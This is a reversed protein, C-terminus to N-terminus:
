VLRTPDASPTRTDILVPTVGAPMLRTLRQALHAFRRAEDAEDATSVEVTLVDSAGLFGPPLAFRGRDLDVALTGPSAVADEVDLSRLDVALLSTIDAGNRRVHYGRDTGHYAAATAGLNIKMSLPTGDFGDRLRAFAGDPAFSYTAGVQALRRPTVSRRRAAAALLFSVRVDGATAGVADLNILFRGLQPDVAVDSTGLSLLVGDPDRPEDFRSLNAARVVMAIERAPDFVSVGRARISFGRATDIYAPLDDRLRRRTLPAGDIGDTLQLPHGDPQGPGLLRGDFTFGTFVDPFVPNPAQDPVPRCPTLYFAHNDFHARGIRDRPGASSRLDMTYPATDDCRGLRAMARGDRLDHTQQAVSAPLLRHFSVTLAGAPPAPAPVLFRGLEPDVAVQGATLVLPAGSPSRPQAFDTLDAGVAVALGSGPTGVLPAGRLEISFGVDTGVLESARQDIEARRIARGRTEDQLAAIARGADFYFFGTAPAHEAVPRDRHRLVPDLSAVHPVRAVVQSFDVTATAWGTVAEAERALPEALGKSRYSAIAQELAARQARSPLAPDIEAGILSGILPLMESRASAAFLDEYLQSISAELEGLPEGLIGLLRRLPGHPGAEDAPADKQRYIAPLYDNLLQGFDTM